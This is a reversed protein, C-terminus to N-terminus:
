VPSGCIRLCDLLTRSLLLLDDDENATLVDYNSFAASSYQGREASFVNIGHFGPEELQLLPQVSQLLSKPRFVNKARLPPYRPLPFALDKLSSAALFKYSLRQRMEPCNICQSRDHHIASNNM